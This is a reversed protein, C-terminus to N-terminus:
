IREREAVLQTLPAHLLREVTGADLELGRVTLEVTVSYDSALLTLIERPGSSHRILKVLCGYFIKIRTDANARM